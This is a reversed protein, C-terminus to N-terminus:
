VMPTIVPTLQSKNLMSSEAAELACVVNIASKGDTLPRTKQLLCEIFHTCEAKLPEYLKIKPIYIDGEQIIFNFEAFTGEMQEPPASSTVSNSYIMIPKGVSMDDWLVMKKDGIVTLQRIKQPHLWSVLVQCCINGPYYFNCSAVDELRKSLIKSGCATVQLPPSDLLYNFISIDHSALDWLASTDTRIPGLNTRQSHVFLIKGLEGSHILSKVHRIGPNFLFVHGVMLILNQEAALRMLESCQQSSSAFPKEVFVHKGAQLAKKTLDYHTTLPTAIVIADIGNEKQLLREYDTTFEVAAQEIKKKKDSNLDCVAKVEVAPHDYFNRFLNPGWHGLGIQALTIKNM